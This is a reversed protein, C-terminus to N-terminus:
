GGTRGRGTRYMCARGFQMFDLFAHVFTEDSGDSVSRMYELNGASCANLFEHTRQQELRARSAKVLARVHLMNSVVQQQGSSLYDQMSSLRDAGASSRRGLGSGRGTSPSAQWSGNRWTPTMSGSNGSSGNNNVLRNFSKSSERPGAPSGMVDMSGVSDMEAIILDAAPGKFVAKIMQACWMYPYVSITFSASRATHQFVPIAQCAVFSALSSINDFGIGACSQV